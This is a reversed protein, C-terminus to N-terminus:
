SFFFVYPVSLNWPLLQAYSSLRMAKPGITFCHRMTPAYLYHSDLRTAVLLWLSLRSLATTGIDGEGVQEWNAESPGVEELNWWKMVVMRQYPVPWVRVGPGGPSSEWDLSCCTLMDHHSARDAAKAIHCWVGEWCVQVHTVTALECQSDLSERFDSEWLHRLLNSQCHHLNCSHMSILFARSGSSSPTRGRRAQPSLYDTSIQKRNLWKLCMFMIHCKLRFSTSPNQYWHCHVTSTFIRTYVHSSSGRYEWQVGFRGQSCLKHWHRNVWGNEKKLFLPWQGYWCYQYKCPIPAWYIFALHPHAINVLCRSGTVAKRTTVRKMLLIVKMDCLEPIHLVQSLNHLQPTRPICGPDEWKVRRRVRPEWLVSADM